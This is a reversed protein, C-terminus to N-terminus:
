NKMGFNNDFTDYIRAVNELSVLLITRGLALFGPLEHKSHLIIVSKFYLNDIRPFIDLRTATKGLLM